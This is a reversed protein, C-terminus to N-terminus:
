HAAWRVNYSGSANKLKLEFTWTGAIAELDFTDGSVKGGNAEGILRVAGNPDRLTWEIRGSSVNAKVRLRTVKTGNTMDVSYKRSDTKNTVDDSWSLNVDTQSHTTTALLVVALFLLPLQRLRERM